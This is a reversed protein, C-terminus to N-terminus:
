RMATFCGPEWCKQSKELSLWDMEWFSLSRDKQPHTDANEPGEQEHDIESINATSSISKPYV